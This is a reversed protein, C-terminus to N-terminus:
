FSVRLGTNSTTKANFVIKSIAIYLLDIVPHYVWKAKNLNNIKLIMHDM